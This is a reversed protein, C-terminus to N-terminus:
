SVTVDHYLETFLPATFGQVNKRAVQVGKNWAIPICPVEDNIIKQAEQYLPARQKPDILQDGKTLLDRLHANDYSFEKKVTSFFYGLYNDPDGNDSGWGLMYLGLKGDTRDQLYAAWDETKLNVTIGAKALDSAIAQAIAKPDPFYGRTVSMYWFDTTFNSVGADKLLQKAKNPDYAYYQLATNYGLIAPPQFQTPVEGLGGYFADIIGQRNIAYAFAQRVRVDKFKPDSQNFALYGTGVAPQTIVHVDPNKKLTPIDSAAIEGTQISGAQMEATRASNDPIVRWIITDLKAPGEWYSPNKTVTIHDGKIWEKFVYPGTGVPNRTFNAADKKVATPSVIAFAFLSLKPLIEGDPKGLTFKVTFDDIKDIGKLNGPFDGFNEKYYPFNGKHYPDNPDSMRKFTFIVADANFDTGDHFKVGHRLKFTLQLNDASIDWGEALAPVITLPPQKRDYRILSDYIETTVMTSEGDEIESPDLGVSDGARGVILTGAKAAASTTAASTAAASSVSAPGASTSVATSVSQSPAATIAIPPTTAAPAASTTAASASASTTAAGAASTSGTVTAATTGGCAALMALAGTGSALVGAWRILQRRSVPRAETAVPRDLHAREASM